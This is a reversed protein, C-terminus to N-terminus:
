YLTEHHSWGCRKCHLSVCGSEPGGYSDDELDHNFRRCYAYTLRDLVSGLTTFWIGKLISGFETPQPGPPPGFTGAAEEQDFYAYDLVNQWWKQYSTLEKPAPIAVLRGIKDDPSRGAMDAQIEVIRQVANSHSFRAAGHRSTSWLTLNFKTSMLYVTGDISRGKIIYM